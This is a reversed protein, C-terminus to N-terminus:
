STHITVSLRWKMKTIEKYKQKQKQLREEIEKFRLYYFKFAFLWFSYFIM